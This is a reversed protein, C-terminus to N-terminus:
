NKNNKDCRREYKMNNNADEKKRQMRRREEEHKHDNRAKKM